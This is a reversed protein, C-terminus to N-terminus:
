AAVSFARGQRRLRALWSRGTEGLMLRATARGWPLGCALSPRTGLARQYVRLGAGRSFPRLRTAIADVQSALTRRFDASKRAAPVKGEYAVCLRWFVDLFRDVEAAQVGLM